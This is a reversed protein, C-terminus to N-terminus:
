DLMLLLLRLLDPTHAVQATATLPPSPSPALCPAVAPRPRTSASSRNTRRTPSSSRFCPFWFVLAFLFFSLPRLGLGPSQLLAVRRGTLSEWLEDTGIADTTVGPRREAGAARTRSALPDCAATAQSKNNAGQSINNPICLRSNSCRNM